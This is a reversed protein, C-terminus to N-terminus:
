EGFGDSHVPAAEPGPAFMAVLNKWEFWALEGPRGYLQDEIMPYVNYRWIRDLKEDTLGNKMFHSHGIQLHPGNLLDMLRLNAQDVVDAVWAPEDQRELWTRLLGQMPGEHPMFPIFDFRRRLAADVLAISRDATNMTGIIFLNKPLEFPEDPRYITRVTHNRYELLFLLEGFARPLNARNIEDIILVHPLGPADEAQEAILALPGKRLEYVLHGEQDTMPRFGEFFDEYSTSPHFQVLSRRSADPQIARALRDALYTKGTGPPGYFIVQGREDLLETIERLFAVDLMLDEAAEAILDREPDVGPANNRQLLWYGFQAMAWPDGPFAAELHARLLNNAEVHRRGLSKGAADPLPVGLRKLMALKGMDGLLPFVPLFQEPQTVALLKFAVSEGLGKMGLDDWDLVRDLREEVPDEGWLFEQLKKSLSALGGGDLNNISSNLVSQPGPNGYRKGNILMRFMQTDLVDLAEHTLAAAMEERQRHNLEDRETPYPRQAKFEAALAALEDSVTSDLSPASNNVFAKLAPALDRATDVIEHGVDASGLATVGPWWRGVFVEGGAYSDVKELRDGTQHPRFRFFSMGPALHPMAREVAADAAKQDGQQWGAYAGFAVGSQTVWLRFGPSGMGGPLSLMAYADARYPKDVHFATKLQLKALELDLGTAEAILPLLAAGATQLEGRLQTAISRAMTTTAEDAYGVGPTFTKLLTAAAACLETLGRELGIFTARHQHWWLLRDLEHPDGPCGKLAAERFPGYCDRQSWSHSWGLAGLAQFASPWLCPWTPDEPDTSWFLSLVFPIRAKAPHGGRSISAVLAEAQDFKAEAAEMDAPTDLVEILSETVEDIKDEGYNVIQNIWMLGFGQFTSYPGPRRVWADLATKFAQADRGSAFASLIQRLEAIRAPRYQDLKAWEAQIEVDALAAARMLDIKNKRHENLDAM